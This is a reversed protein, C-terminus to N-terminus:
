GRQLIVWTMDLCGATTSRMTGIFNCIEDNWIVSLIYTLYFSTLGLSQRLMWIVYRLRQLIGGM